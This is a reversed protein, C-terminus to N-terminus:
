FIYRSQINAVGWQGSITHLGNISDTVKLVGNEVFIRRAEYNAGGETFTGHCVCPCALIFSIDQVSGTINDKAVFDFYFVGTATRVVVHYQKLRFNLKSESLGHDKVKSDDISGEPINEAIINPYLNTTPDNIPHLTTIKNM